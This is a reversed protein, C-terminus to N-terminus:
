RNFAKGDSATGLNDPGWRGQFGGSQDLDKLKQM